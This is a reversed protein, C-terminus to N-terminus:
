PASLETELFLLELASISPKIFISNYCKQLQNKIQNKLKRKSHITLQHSNDYRTKHIKTFHMCQLNLTINDQLYLQNHNGSESPGRMHTKACFLYYDM